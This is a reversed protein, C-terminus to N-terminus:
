VYSIAKIDENVKNIMYNRINFLKDKIERQYTVVREISEIMSDYSSENLTNLVEIPYDFLTFLGRTKFTDADIPILPTNSLIAFVAGHYRDTIVFDFNSMIHILIPYDYYESLIHLSCRKSLKKFVHEDYSKCTFLCFIKSGYKKQVHSIVKAWSEYDVNRDGRIVVGVSGEEVGEKKILSQVDERYSIDVAFASDASVTIKNPDIGMKILVEKSLPERTIHLDVMKYVFKVLNFALPETVAVNENVAVCKKGLKKALFVEFMASPLYFKRHDAFFQTEQLVIDADKILTILRYSFYNRLIYPKVAELISRGFKDQFKKDVKKFIHNNFLFSNDVFNSIWAELKAMRPSFSKVKNFWKDFIGEIDELSSNKKFAKINFYPFSKWPGSIIQYELNNGILRHLGELKARDGLNTLKSRTSFRDGLFLLKKKKLYTVQM